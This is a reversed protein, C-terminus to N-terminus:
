WGLTFGVRGATKGGKNFGTAVGANVAVHDTVLAGVQMAGAQAGGYTAVNATLNFRTNPLFANGTLAVAVATSSSVRKELKGLRSDITDLRDSLADVRANLATDAALRASTEATLAQGLAAREADGNDIRQSLQMDAQTRASTEEDLQRKNVADTAAVGDALNRVTSGNMDIGETVSVTPTTLGNEDLQTTVQATVNYQLGFPSLLAADNAGSYEPYPTLLNGSLLSANGSLRGFQLAGSGSRGNFAGGLVVSNGNIITDPDISALAFDYEGGDATDIGGDLDVYIYDVDNVFNRTNSLYAWEQNQNPAPAGNPVITSVDGDYSTKLNVIAGNTDFYYAADAFVPTNGGAATIVPRGDVQLNGDFDVRYTSTVRDLSPNREYPTRSVSQLTLARTGDVTCPPVTIGTSSYAYFDCNADNLPVQGLGLDLDVQAYAANNAAFCFALAM